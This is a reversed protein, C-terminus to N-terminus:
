DFKYTFGGMVTRGVGPKFGEAIEYLYFEDTLNQGNAWLTLSDTVNLNARASLLWQSPVGQDNDENTTYAGKHTATISADWLNKYEVGLTLNAFHKISEPVQNGAVSDGDENFGRTIEADAFTYVAEGFLNWPGGTFPRSELRALIEFGDIEVEDLSTYVQLGNILFAEKFQYNEITQHFYAMDMTLGRVASSRLGIQFNEGTEEKLPFGGDQDNADRVLHPTLGEYYGGYITTRPMAEWAFSIGPLVHDHKSTLLPSGAVPLNDDLKLQFDIDYNEFRVGPVVTFTPTVHIATQIFAAFAEANLEVMDDIPGRNSFNLVQGLGFGNVGVVDAGGRNKNTFFQDEYRVGMQLDHTMGGVLPLNAFEIRSDVGYTKYRRDRGEMLIGAPTNGVGDEGAYFRARETDTGYIRTSLTTNSDIYLNHAVQLRYHDANYTSLDTCCTNEFFGDAAGRTRNRGYAFFAALEEDDFNAEDYQDRQRFYGGSITLDQNSGRFGIAGYFDNYGLEEDNWSGGYDGGSYSAVIGVNGLNQRTHVHRFNNIDRDSGETYGIGAKIVTENAGFPSLNRFNVVGHNNLPGYNLVMGRMVEISELRETPPTYHTSSDLYTSFNIPIGDEMVLVKRSRRAASGRMGIGSHRGAGDDPITVVGPVRALAEHNNAPRQLEMDETTVRTGAAPYNQLDDPLAQRANVPSLPGDHARQVAGGSRAAGYPSHDSAPTETEIEAPAASSAPQAAAKKKAAAAAKKKQVVEVQPLPGDAPEAATQAAAPSAALGMAGAMVTLKLYVKLSM